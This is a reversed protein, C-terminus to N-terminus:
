ETRDSDENVDFINASGNGAGPPKAAKGDSDLAGAAAEAAGRGAAAPAVDDPLVPADEFGAPVEAAQVPISAPVPRASQAPSTPGASALAKAQRLAEAEHAEIMAAISAQAVQGAVLLSTEGSLVSWVEVAGKTVKVNASDQDVSVTFATGVATATLFPTRVKFPKSPESTVKFTATGTTQFVGKAPTGWETVALEVVSDADVQVLDGERMLTIHGRAKSMIRTGAAIRDGTNVEVAPDAGHQATVSGHVNTVLWTANVNTAAHPYGTVTLLTALTVAIVTPRRAARATAAGPGALRSVPRPYM